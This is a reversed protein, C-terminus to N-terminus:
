SSGGRRRQRHQRGSGKSGSTLAQSSRAAGEAQPHTAQRDLLDALWPLLERGAWTLAAGLAPLIRSRVPALAKPANVRIVEPEPRLAPLRVGEVGERQQASLVIAGNPCATVCAECERCLAEDVTAKGEVLFIAGTPCAALCVGCGDCQEPRILIV